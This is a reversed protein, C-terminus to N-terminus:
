TDYNDLQAYRVVVFGIATPIALLAFLRQM